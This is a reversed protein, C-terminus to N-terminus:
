SISCSRCTPRTCRSSNEPLGRRACHHMAPDAVRAAAAVLCHRLHTDDGAIVAMTAARARPLGPVADLEALLATLDPSGARARASDALFRRRAPAALPDIRAPLARMDM